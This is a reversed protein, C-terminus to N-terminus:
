CLMNVYHYCIIADDAPNKECVREIGVIAMVWWILGLLQCRLGM